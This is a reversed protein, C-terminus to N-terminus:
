LLCIAWVILFLKSSGSIYSLRLLILIAWENEVFVVIRLKLAADIAYSVKSNLVKTNVALVNGTASLVSFGKAFSDTKKPDTLVIISQKLNEYKASLGAVYTMPVLWLSKSLGMIM